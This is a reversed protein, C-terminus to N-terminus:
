LLKLIKVKGNTLKPFEDWGESARDAPIRDMELEVKWSKPQSLSQIIEKEEWQHLKIGTGIINETNTLRSKKIAFKVDDLTFMRDSLLEQAKEFFNYAGNKYANIEAISMGQFSLQQTDKGVLKDVDFWGIKKQEEESLKYISIQDQQAVVKKCDVGLNFHGDWKSIFELNVIYWDDVKIEEDSTIIFGKAFEFHRGVRQKNPLKHLTFNQKM